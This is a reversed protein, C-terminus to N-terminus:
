LVMTWIKTGCFIHTTKNCMWKKIKIKYFTLGLYFHFCAGGMLSALWYNSNFFGVKLSISESFFQSFCPESQHISPHLPHPSHAPTWSSKLSKCTFNSFYTRRNELLALKKNMFFEEKCLKKHEFTLNFALM